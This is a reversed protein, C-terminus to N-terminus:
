PLPPGEATTTAYVADLHLARRLAVTPVRYKVGVRIVPVGDTLQGEERALRHATTHSIGLAEWALELSVTPAEEPTPITRATM